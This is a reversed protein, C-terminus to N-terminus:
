VSGLICVWTNQTLHEGRIINKYNEYERLYEFAFPFPEGKIKKKKQPPPVFCGQYAFQTQIIIKTHLYPPYEAFYECVLRM